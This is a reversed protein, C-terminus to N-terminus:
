FLGRVRGFVGMIDRILDELLRLNFWVLWATIYALFMIPIFTLLVWGAIKANIWVLTWYDNTTTAPILPYGLYEVLFWALWYVHAGIISFLYLIPHRERPTPPRRRGLQPLKETSRDGNSTM